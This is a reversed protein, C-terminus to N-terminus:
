NKPPPRSFLTFELHIPFGNNLELILINKNGINNSFNQRQVVSSISKYLKQFDQHFFYSKAQGQIRSNVKPSYRIIKENLLSDENRNKASKISYAGYGLLYLITLIIYPIHTSFLGFIFM